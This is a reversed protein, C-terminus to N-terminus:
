GACGTIPYLNRLQGTGGIQKVADAGRRNGVRLCSQISEGQIWAQIFGANFADGAGTPDVCETKEAASHIVGEQTYARAGNEGMKVVTIPSPYGASDIKLFEQHEADNPLFLDVSEILGHAEPASIAQLDWACDLSITWDASRARPVLEPHELLTSLEAIHLHGITNAHILQELGNVYNEPLAGGARRTVFARDAQNSLVVTLQPDASEEFTCTSLGVRGKLDDKVMQGLPLAPLNSCLETPVGSGALYSATIAAGGGAHLSLNDAYVEQGMAPMKPLGSFVLDCYVRGVCLVGKFPPPESM